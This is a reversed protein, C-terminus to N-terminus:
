QNDLIQLRYVKSLKSDSKGPSGFDNYDFDFKFRYEIVNNGPPVPILTEWRNTMLSTPRMPFFESGVVVQPRISNWRLTQQRSTMAAELSYLGNPNRFEKEPTLNTITTTSCGAVLLGLLLVPSLRKVKFM